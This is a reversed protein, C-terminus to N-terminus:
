TCAAFLEWEGPVGKLVHRGRDEFRLGSGAVLDVVARSVLVESAQALAGVRAAIHVSLGAVNDGHRSVEGIHVGARIQLGLPRVADVAALACQLARAPGDFIAFFGDGATNVEVGRFRALETRVVADHNRLLAVWEDDGLRAAHQTSGVVDTFLMTALFRDRDHSAVSGTLFEEITDLVADADGYWPLHDAGEFEVLRAQPIAAALERAAAVSLNPDDRRHLVLTPVSLVELVPRVDISAAMRVLAAAAGPTACQREFRALSQRAAPDNSVSASRGALVAGTGWAREILEVMGRGNDPDATVRRAYSGYLVLARTREPYTAAFLVSM